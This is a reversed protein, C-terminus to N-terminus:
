GGRHNPCARNKQVRYWGGNESYNRWKCTCDDPVVDTYLDGMKAPGEANTM